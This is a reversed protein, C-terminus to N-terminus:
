QEQSEQLARLIAKNVLAPQEFILMHGGDTGMQYGGTDWLEAIRLTQEPETVRDRTGVMVTGPLGRLAKVGEVENHDQLDDLFGVYTNLPTTRILKAHFNIVSAPTPTQFVTSALVPAVLGSIAERFKAAEKPSAEVGARIKEVVPLALIQPIGQSAISDVATSVLVLGKTRERLEPFRRLLNMAVMGGLSHGVIIIPGDIGADQIAARVDDAAGDITCDELAWEGSEGHGRLDVTLCRAVPAVAEVQMFWASGALTFGHIFVVTTDSTNHDGYVYYHIGATEGSRDYAPLDPLEKDERDAPGVLAKAREILDSLREM